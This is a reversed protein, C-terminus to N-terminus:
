LNLWNKNDAEIKRFQATLSRDDNKTAIYEDALWCRAGNEIFPAAMLSQPLLAGLLGLMLAFIHRSINKQFIPFM